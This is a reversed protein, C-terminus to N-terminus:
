LPLQMGQFTPTTQSMDTLQYWDPDHRLPRTIRRPVLHKIRPDITKQFPERDRHLEIQEAGPVNSYDGTMSAVQKLFEVETRSYWKQAHVNEVTYFLRDPGMDDIFLAWQRVAADQDFDAAFAKPSKLNPGVFASQVERLLRTAAKKNKGSAFMPGSFKCFYGILDMISQYLDKQTTLLDFRVRQRGQSPFVEALQNKLEDHYYGRGVFHGSLVWGGHDNISWGQEVSMKALVSKSNTLEDYSRLDPEFAGALVLGRKRTTNKKVFTNLDRRFQDVLLGLSDLNHAYGYIITVFFTENKVEPYIYRLGLATLVHICNEHRWIPSLMCPQLTSPVYSSIKQFLREFEPYSPRRALAKLIKKAGLLEKILYPTELIEEYDSRILNKFEDTFPGRKGLAREVKGDKANIRLWHIANGRPSFAGQSSTTAGPQTNVPKRKVAM